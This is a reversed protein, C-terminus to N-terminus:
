QGCAMQIASVAGLGAAVSMLAGCQWPV